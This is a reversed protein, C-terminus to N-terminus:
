GSCPARWPCSSAGNKKGASSSSGSSSISAQPLPDPCTPAILKTALSARLGFRSATRGALGLKCPIREAGGAAILIASRFNRSRRRRLFSPSKKFVCSVHSLPTPPPPPPSDFPARRVNRTNNISQSVNLQKHTLRPLLVPIMGPWSTGFSISTMPDIASM